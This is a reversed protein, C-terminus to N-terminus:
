SYLDREENSMPKPSPAKTTSRKHRKREEQKARKKEAIARQQTVTTFIPWNFSGVRREELEQRIRAISLMSMVAVTPLWGLHTTWDVIDFADVSEPASIQYNISREDVVPMPEDLERRRIRDARTRFATSHAAWMISATLEQMREVGLETEMYARLKRIFPQLGPDNIESDLAIVEVQTLSSLTSHAIIKKVFLYASMGKDTSDWEAAGFEMTAEADDFIYDVIFSEIAHFMEMLKTKPERTFPPQTMNMYDSTDLETDSM